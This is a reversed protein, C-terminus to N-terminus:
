SGGRTVSIALDDVFEYFSEAKNDYARLAEISITWADTPEAPSILSRGAARLCAALATAGAQTETAWFWWTFASQQQTDIDFCGPLYVHRNDLLFLSFGAIDRAADALTFREPDRVINLFMRDANLLGWRDTDVRSRWYYAYDCQNICLVHPFYRKRTVGGGSLMSELIKLDDSGPTRDRPFAKVLKQVMPNEMLSWQVSGGSISFLEDPPIAPFIELKPSVIVQKTGQFGTFGREFLLATELKMGELVPDEPDGGPLAELYSEAAWERFKGRGEETICFGGGFRRLLGGGALKELLLPDEGAMEVLRETWFPRNEDFLLLVREESM